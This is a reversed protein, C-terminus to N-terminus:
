QLSKLSWFRQPLLCLLLCLCARDHLTVRAAVITLKWIARAWRNTGARLCRRTSLRHMYRPFSAVSHYWIFVESQTSLFTRRDRAVSQCQKTGLFCNFPSRTIMCSSPRQSCDDSSSLPLLSVPSLCRPGKIVHRGCQLDCANWVSSSAIHDRVPCRVKRSPGSPNQRSARALLYGQSSSLLSPVIRPPSNLCILLVVSLSAVTTPKRSQNNDFASYPRILDMGDVRLM